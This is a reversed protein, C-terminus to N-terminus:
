RKRLFLVITVVVLIIVILLIGWWYESFGEDQSTQDGGSPSITVTITDIDWNGAADTVNLTVTYTGPTWFSYQPSSGYLTVQTGNYSFMWTYNTVGVNDTSESGEFTILTEADVQQDPGADAVPPNTDTPHSTTTVNVLMTDIDWNGAADTVNLTVVYLMPITFMFNPAVSYLLVEQDDYTFNWTYNNIGINDYSGSGDFLVMTGEDVTQDLGANAIPAINDSSPETLNNMVRITFEVYMVAYPDNVSINVTHNGIDVYRPTWRITGSNSDISLNTPGEIEDFELTDYNNLDFANITYNLTENAIVTVNQLASIEPIANVFLTLGVNNNDYNSEEELLDSGVIFRLDEFGVRADWPITFNTESNFGLEAINHIPCIPTGIESGYLCSININNVDLLGINSVSINFKVIDNENIVGQYKEIDTIEIGNVMLSNISILIDNHPNVYFDIERVNSENLEPIEGLYDPVISINYNGEALNSLEFSINCTQGPYLDFKVRHSGLLTSASPTGNFYSITFNNCRTGGINTINALVSVQDGEILPYDFMLYIDSVYLDPYQGVDITNFGINNEESIEKISSSNDVYVYIDHTGLTAEWTFNVIQVSMNTLTDSIVTSDILVGSSGREGDYVSLDYNSVNAEGLNTISVSINIFMGEWPDPRSFKVSSNIIALDPFDLVSIECVHMNNTKNKEINRELSDVFVIINYNGKESLNLTTEVYTNSAKLISSIQVDDLTTNFNDLYVTVNTPLSEIGGENLISINLTFEQERVVNSPYTVSTINLECLYKRELSFNFYETVGTSMSLNFLEFGIGEKSVNIVYYGAKVSM